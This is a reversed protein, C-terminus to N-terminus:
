LRFPKLSYVAEALASLGRERFRPNEELVDQFLHQTVTFRDQYDAIVEQQTVAFPPGEMEEQAYDMTVLLVNAQPPLITKMHRVYANRLAPPLAVMSGRDFVAAVESLDEARLAFVDGCYMTVGDASFKLFEATQEVDHDIQNEAFFERCAQEACEVGIVEYGQSRLWLMDLTKGCLPIFVVAPATVGLEPWYRLLYRNFEPQHFGTQRQAWREIWFEKEM